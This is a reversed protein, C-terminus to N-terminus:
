QPRDASGSTTSFVPHPVPLRCAQMHAVLVLCWGFSWCALAPVLAGSMRLLAAMAVCFFGAVACRRAKLHGPCRLASARSMVAIGMGGLGGIAIVHFAGSTGLWNWTWEAFALAHIILGAPIFGLAISMMLLLTDGRVLRLHLSAMFGALSLATGLLLASVIMPPGNDWFLFAAGLTILAAHRLRWRPQFHPMSARDAVAQLFAALMRCGIAIVLWVPVLVMRPPMNRVFLAAAALLLCVVIVLPPVVASRGGHQWERLVLGAIIAFVAANLGRAVLESLPHAVLAAARACLWILALVHVVGGRLPARGSWAACASLAYGAILAAVFGLVMESLHWHLTVHAAIGWHWLPVSLAAWLAALGFFVRYAEARGPM